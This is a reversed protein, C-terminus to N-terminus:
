FPLQEVSQAVPPFSARSSLKSENGGFSGDSLKPKRATEAFIASFRVNKGVKSLFISLSHALGQSFCRSASSSFFCERERLFRCSGRIAARFVAHKLGVLMGIIAVAQTYLGILMLIGSVFIVLAGFLTLWEPIHMGMVKTHAVHERTRIFEYSVYLLTFAAAIRLLATALPALYLLGPFLTLM